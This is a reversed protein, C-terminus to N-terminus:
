TQPSPSNPTTDGSRGALGWKRRLVPLSLVEIRLDPRSSQIISVREMTKDLFDGESADIGIILRAKVSTEYSSRQLYEKAEALQSAAKQLNQLTFFKHYFIKIEVVETEFKSTVVVDFIRGGLKVERRLRGKARSSLERVIVGEDAIFRDIMEDRISESKTQDQSATTQEGAISERVEQELKKEQEPATAQELLELDIGSVSIKKVLRIIFPTIVFGLLILGANSIPRWLYDALFGALGVIAVLSAPRTTRGWIAKLFEIM